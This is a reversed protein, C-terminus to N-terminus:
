SIIRNRPNLRRMRFNLADAVGRIEAICSTIIFTKFM